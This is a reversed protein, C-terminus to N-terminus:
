IFTTALKKPDIISIPAENRYQKAESMFESDAQFRLVGVEKASYGDL